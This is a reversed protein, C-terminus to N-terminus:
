RKNNEHKVEKNAIFMIVDAEKNLRECISIAESLDCETTRIVGMTFAVNELRAYKEIGRSMSFYGSLAKGLRTEAFTPYPAVVPTMQESVARFRLTTYKKECTDWDILINWKM